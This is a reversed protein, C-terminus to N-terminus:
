GQDYRYYGTCMYLFRTVIVTPEGDVLVDVTWLDTESNFDAGSVDVGFTIHNYIGFDRATQELYDRIEDGQAM